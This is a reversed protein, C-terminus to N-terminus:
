ERSFVDEEPEAHPRFASRLEELFSLAASQELRYQDLFDEVAHGTALYDVLAYVPVRTGPFRPTGGLTDEDVAVSDFEEFDIV